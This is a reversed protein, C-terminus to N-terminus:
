ENKVFLKKIKNGLMMAFPSLSVEEDEVAIKELEQECECILQIGSASESIVIKKNQIKVLYLAAKPNLARKELIQIANMKNLHRGRSRNLKKLMWVTFFLLAVIVGLTIMMNVFEHWYNYNAGEDISSIINGRDSDALFLSSFFFLVNEM